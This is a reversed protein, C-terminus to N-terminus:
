SYMREPSGKVCPACRWKTDQVAKETRVPSFFNGPFVCSTLTDAQACVWHTLFHECVGFYQEPDQLACLLQAHQSQLLFRKELQSVYPKQQSRKKLNRKVLGKHPDIDFGLEQPSEQCQLSWKPRNQEHKM